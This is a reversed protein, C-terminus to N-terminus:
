KTCALDAARKGGHAKIILAVGAAGAEEAIDLATRGNGALSLENAQVKLQTLSPRIPLTRSSM